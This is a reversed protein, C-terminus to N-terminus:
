QDTAELDNYEDISPEFETEQYYTVFQEERDPWEMLM